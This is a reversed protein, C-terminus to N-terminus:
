LMDLLEQLRLAIAEPAFRAMSARTNERWAADPPQRYVQRLTRVLDARNIIGWTMEPSFLTPLSQCMDASVPGTSYSVPFSNRHDMFEMNGSYGTAIVPNGFALAESLPLGWAEAHHASVYVDCLAHLAAMQADDLMEPVDIVHPFGSVDCAHRYQKVVLRVGSKQAPFAVAFATLLTLMDKRPNVSDVITYFYMERQPRRTGPMGLRSTMFAFDKESVQPREVVHPLVHTAIHPMFAQRSFESCTWVADVLSLGEIYLRPLQPTEWVAYGVYRVHPCRPLTQFIAPYLYPAEHIIAVQCDCPDDTLEHGLRRLCAMYAQGARRHSIYSSLYYFIRM